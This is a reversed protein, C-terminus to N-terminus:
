DSRRCTVTSAITMIDRRCLGAAILFGCGAVLVQAAVAKIDPRHTVVFTLLLRVVIGAIALAGAVRRLEPSALSKLLKDWPVPVPEHALFQICVWARVLMSAANGWVLSSPGAGLFALGSSAAVLVASAQLQSAQARRLWEASARSHMCAELVGNLALALLLVCYAGLAQPAASAAWTPGYLVFIGSTALPPGFWAATWGISGQLALLPALLQFPAADPPLKGFASYAIEEVPAFLLRLVLSGVNTVLAFVGWDEQSFFALLLVKEGEQLVAKQFAMGSFQWFVALHKADVSQRPGPRRVVFYSSSWVVAFVLQGVTFSAVGDFGAVAVAFAAASRLLNAVGEASARRTFELDILSEVVVPEAAAEVVAAVAVGVVALSYGAPPDSPPWATWVVALVASV